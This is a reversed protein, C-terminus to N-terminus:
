EANRSKVPECGTNQAEVSAICSTWYNITKKKKKKKEESSGVLDPMM